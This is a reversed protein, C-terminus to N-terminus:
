APHAPSSRVCQVPTYNIVNGHGCCSHLSQFVGSKKAPMAAEPVDKGVQCHSRGGVGGVQALSGELQRVQQRLAEAGSREAQLEGQLRSLAAAGASHAAERGQLAERLQEAAQLAPFRSHGPAFPPLPNAVLANFARM